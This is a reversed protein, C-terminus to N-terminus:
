FLFDDFNFSFNSSIHNRMTHSISMHFSINNNFLSIEYKYQQLHEVILNILIYQVFGYSNAHNIGIESFSVAFFDCVHELKIM